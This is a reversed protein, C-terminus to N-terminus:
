ANVLWQLMKENVQPPDELTSLHGSEPLLVLDALPIQRAMEEACAPPTIVDLKGTLILTPCTISPLEPLYNRRNIISKMQRRFAPEGTDQAMKLIIKRLAPEDVRGPAVLRPLLVESTIEAFKGADAMELLEHRAGLQEPTDPRAKGDLLALRTVRQPALMMIELSLYVGMSLGALAFRDPAADLIQRAIETMDDGQMHDAVMVDRRSSFAEVQPAFLDATCMLGPILLVPEIM